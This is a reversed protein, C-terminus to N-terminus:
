KMFVRVQPVEIAKVPASLAGKSVDYAQHLGFKRPNELEEVGNKMSIKERLDM